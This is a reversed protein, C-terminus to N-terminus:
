TKSQQHKTRIFVPKALDGEDLPAQQAPNSMLSQIWQFGVHSLKWHWLLLEKQAATLNQNTKAAVSTFIDYKSPQMISHTINISPQENISIFMTPLNNNPHYPIVLELKNKDILCSVHKRMVYQSGVGATDLWIQPSFLRIHADPVYLPKIRIIIKQGNIDRAIWEM